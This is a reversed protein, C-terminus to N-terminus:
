CSLDHLTADQTALAEDRVEWTSDKKIDLVSDYKLKSEGNKSLVVVGTGQESLMDMIGTIQTKALSSGPRDLFVFAPKAIFIRAFSLLHQEGISLMDDWNQDTDLGNSRTIVDDVGLRVLIERILEDPVLNEM